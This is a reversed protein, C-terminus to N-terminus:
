RAFVGKRKELGMQILREVERKVEDVYQELQDERAVDGEFLMPEGIHIIVKSPWVVPLIVPASPLNLARAVGKLNALSIISEECGVIGVPLIPTKHNVALHMFGTGFRQLRYRQSYPKSIGRSGEPFIVIAEDAELMRECNIPDGVVGGIEAFLSSVFPVTPVFREMMAKCARPAHPNTLLAYGLLFGDIPLQGSHNGIIMVRGKPPVNELGYVETRFYKEYFWQGLGITTRVGRLNFGWADYGFSGVRTPFRDLLEEVGDPSVIKKIFDTLAM